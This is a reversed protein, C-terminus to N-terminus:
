LQKANMLAARKSEQMLGAVLNIKIMRPCVSSFLFGLNIMKEKSKNLDKGPCKQYM